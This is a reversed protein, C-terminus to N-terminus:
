GLQALRAAEQDKKMCCHKYKKGSGCPCPDNRGVKKPKVVTKSRRYAKTIETMKEEGLVDKWQPLGYLYEAGAGHMNFFLKEFDIDLTIESEEDLGDLEFSKNLSSQIGDLFAMYIVPRVGNEKALEGIKGTFVTKPAGEAKGALYGDLINEYIGMEGDAYEKFFEDFTEDTQSQTLEIWEQYLTM